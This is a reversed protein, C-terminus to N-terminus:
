REVVKVEGNQYGVIVKSVMQNLFLGNEVVGPIAKILQHLEEVQDIKQFDCDIVFNKNDTIYSKGDKQRVTTTCGLKQLQRTTLELAFPTVEVPLPFKGLPKVLKHEDVIVVFQKSNFALIKERLLAGGGGKILNLDEDVEAAGDIYIDIINIHSFPVITIGADKALQESQISSAVAKVNLGNQIKQGITKIAFASTSGTGLGVTMGDTVYQVAHQAALQKAIM